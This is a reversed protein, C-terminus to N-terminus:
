REFRKSMLVENMYIADLSWLAADNTSLGHWEDVPAPVATGTIRTISFQPAEAHEIRNWLDNWAEAALEPSRLQWAAYALLRRVPFRNHSIDRAM